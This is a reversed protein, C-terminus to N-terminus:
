KVYLRKLLNTFRTPLVSTLLRYMGRAVEYRTVIAPRRINVKNLRAYGFEDLLDALMYEICRIEKTSLEDQWGSKEGKRFFGKPMVEKKRMNELTCAAISDEAIQQKSSLGLWRYLDTLQSVGQDKMAEYQIERYRDSDGAISRATSIELRWRLCFRVPHTSFVRKSSWTKAASKWSAFVARPDRIVHLLHAQPYLKRLLALHDINEPQSEVVYTAHTKLEFAKDFIADSVQRCTKFFEDETLFDRLNAKGSEGGVITNRYPDNRNWWIELDRFARIANTHLVGVLEPHNALLSLVWTTGSRRSGIVFLNGKRGDPSDASLSGAQNDPTIIMISCKIL